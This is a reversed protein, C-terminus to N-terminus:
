RIPVPSDTASFITEGGIRCPPAEIGASLVIVLDEILEDFPAPLAGVQKAHQYRALSHVSSTMTITWREDLLAEPHDPLVLRLLSLMTNVTSTSVAGELGGYGGREIIYRSLFSLYHSGGELHHVLSLVFARVLDSAEIPRGSALLQALQEARVRESTGARYSTVERLLQERDGFHYQVAVNNRQGAALAIDRLPVSSIGREAFLREASELLLM